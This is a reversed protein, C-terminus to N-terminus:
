ESKPRWRKTWDSLARRSRAELEFAKGSPWQALRRRLVDLQHSVEDRERALRENELTLSRVVDEPYRHGHTEFMQALAVTRPSPPAPLTSTSATTLYASLDDFVSGAAARLENRRTTLRSKVTDRESWVRELTERVVSRAATPDLSYSPMDLEHMLSSVKDDYALAVHPVGWSAAVLAAHYRMGISVVADRYRGVHATPTAGPPTVTLDPLEQALREGLRDDALDAGYHFPVFEPRLGHDRAFDTVARGLSLAAADDGAVNRLNLVIRDAREAPEPADIEPALWGLDAGTTTREIWGLEEVVRGSAADRVWVHRASRLLSQVMARGTPTHLPSAGVGVVFVPVGMTEAIMAPRVYAALSWSPSSYLEWYEPARKDQLLGGGGIVVADSSAVADVVRPLNHIDVPEVEPPLLTADRYYTAAFDIPHLRAPLAAIISSLILEDGLNGSGFYGVFLLRM